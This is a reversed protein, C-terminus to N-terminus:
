RTFVMRYDPQIAGRKIKDLKKAILKRKLLKLKETFLVGEIHDYEHQIVRAEFGTFIEQHTKFNEDQYRIEVTELRSVDGRINPISLCGEEMEFSEGTEAIIEANIFAKKIGKTNEGEMQLTDVLFIRVSKGIQPAALGVGQAHYMTEWMNDLLTKLAPYDADINKAKRKLVTNGYAYVPLIM